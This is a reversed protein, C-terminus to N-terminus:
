KKIKESKKMISYSVFRDDIRDIDSNKMKELDDKSFKLNNTIVINYYIEKTLDKLEKLNKDNKENAIKVPKILFKEFFVLVIMTLFASVVITEWSIPRSLAWNITGLIIAFSGSIAIITTSVERVKEM